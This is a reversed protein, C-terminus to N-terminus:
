GSLSFPTARAPRGSPPFPTFPFSGAARARKGNLQPERKHKLRTYSCLWGGQNRGARLPFLSSSLAVTVVGGASIRTLRFVQLM